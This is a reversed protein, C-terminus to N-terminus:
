SRLFHFLNRLMGATAGWIFYDEYPMTYFSRRGVPDPLEVSRRQHNEGDMLFALPVEFIEAVERPDGIAEFPPQILGAVPTVRYGTGTFYDPLSGIVEVHQRALGIEEETERLATDIASADYDERRGGPFSIQGAHDKLDATRRTFLITMGQERLVIPILVSALRFRGKSQAMRVMQDGSHEPEWRPPEAFRQRLWDANLRAAELAREGAIADVPLHAPDFSAM